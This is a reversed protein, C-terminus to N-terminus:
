NRLIILENKSSIRAIVSPEKFQEDYRRHEVVYDVKTLFDPDIDKYVKPAPQGSFNASTSIIPAGLERIIQKCFDDQVVRIAVTKDDAIVIDPFNEVNDYVITLPRTYHTLINSIKPIIVPVYFTLQKPNEVLVIMKKSIDRNKIEFLRKVAQENVASCGVGWVTDTPYIFIGGSKLIPVIKSVEKYDMVKLKVNIFVITIFRFNRNGKFYVFLLPYIHLEYVM